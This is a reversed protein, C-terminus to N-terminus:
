YFKTGVIRQDPRGCARCCYVNTSAYPGSYHVALIDYTLYVNSCPFFFCVFISADVVRLGVTGKVTLDSNLAGTGSGTTGTKGMAVTGSVHNVTAGTNRVYQEIEDDTQALAFPGVEELIWGKWAPAAMFTRASKISERMAFIDFEDNLFNPDIVPSDFPNTSGLTINGGKNDITL